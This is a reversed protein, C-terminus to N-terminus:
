LFIGLLKKWRTPEARFYNNERIIGQFIYEIRTNKINFFNNKYVINKQILNRLDDCVKM